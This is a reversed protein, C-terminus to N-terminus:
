LISIQPGTFILPVRMLESPLTASLIGLGFSNKISATAIEGSGDRFWQRVAPDRIGCDVVLLQVNAYTQMAASRLAEDLFNLPQDTM